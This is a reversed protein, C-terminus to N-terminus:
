PCSSNVNILVDDIEMTFSEASAGISVESTNCFDFFEFLVPNYNRTTGTVSEAQVTGNLSVKWDFYVRKEGFASPPIVVPDYIEIKWNAPYTGIQGFSVGRDSIQQTTIDYQTYFFDVNPLGSIAQQIKLRDSTGNWIRFVVVGISSATISNVKCSFTSRNAWGTKFSSPSSVGWSKAIYAGFTFVNPQKIIECVNGTKKTAALSVNPYPSFNSYFYPKAATTQAKTNVLM